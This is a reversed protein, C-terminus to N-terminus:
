NQGSETTVMGWAPANWRDPRKPADQTPSGPGRRTLGKDQLPWDMEVSVGGERVHWSSEGLTKNQELNSSYSTPNVRMSGRWHQRLLDLQTSTPFASDARCGERHSRGQALAQEPNPLGSNGGQFIRTHSDASLPQRLGWILSRSRHFTHWTGAPRDRSHPQRLTEGRQTKEKGGQGVSVCRM